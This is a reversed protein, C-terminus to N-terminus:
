VRLQLQVVEGGEYLHGQEELNPYAMNDLALLRPNSFSRVPGRTRSLVAVSTYQLASKGNDVPTTISHRTQVSVSM